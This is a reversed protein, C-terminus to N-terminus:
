QAGAQREKELREKELEEKTKPPPKKTPPVKQAHVLPQAAPKVKPPALVPAPKEQVPRETSVPPNRGGSAQFEGASKQAPHKPEATPVAKAKQAAQTQEEHAKVQRVEVHNDPPRVMPAPKAAPHIPAAAQGQRLPAPHVGRAAASANLRVANAPPHPTGTMVRPQAFSAHAAVSVSASAGRHALQPPPPPANQPPHWSSYYHNNVTVQTYDIPHAWGGHQRRYDYWDGHWVAHRRWDFDFTLWIGAPYPSSWAFYSGSYFGGPQQVYVVEPDYLPVYIEDPQQPVIEITNQYVIVQQQQSNVLAGAAQARRRLDQIADMVAAPQSAFAGGLQETWAYNSGMWEVVTPYHALGQVSSDWGNNAAQSPDGGGQLFGAADRIESPFTAAPLILSILPDPYLAIPALLEDLPPM